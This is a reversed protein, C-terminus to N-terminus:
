HSRSEVDLDNATWQPGISVERVLHSRYTSHRVRSALIETAVLSDVKQKRPNATFASSPCLRALGIRPVGFSFALRDGRCGYEQLRKVVLRTGFKEWCSSGPLSSRLNGPCFRCGARM